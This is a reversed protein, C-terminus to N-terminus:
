KKKKATNRAKAAPKAQATVPAPAEAQATIPAPAPAAVPAPAEAQATIPVPAPAAVPAPAPAQAQATIPVPAPAPAPEPPPIYLRPLAGTEVFDPRNKVKDPHQVAEVPVWPRPYLFRQMPNPHARMDRSFWEVVQVNHTRMNCYWLALEKLKAVKAYALRRALSLTCGEAQLRVLADSYTKQVVAPADTDYGVRLEFPVFKREVPCFNGAAILYRAGYVKVMWLTDQFMDALTDFAKEWECPGKKQKFRYLFVLILFDLHRLGARVCTFLTKNVLVKPKCQEALRVLETPLPADPTLKCMKAENGQYHVGDLLNGVVDCVTKLQQEVSMGLGKYVQLSGPARPGEPKKATAKAVPCLGTQRLCSELYGRSDSSQLARICRVALDKLQEMPLTSPDLDAGVSISQGVAGAAHGLKPIKAAQRAREENNEMILAVDAALDDEAARKTAATRQQRVVPVPKMDAWVFVQNGLSALDPIGFDGLLDMFTALFCGGRRDSAAWKNERFAEVASTCNGVSSFTLLTAEGGWRTRDGGGQFFLVFREGGNRRRRVILGFLAVPHPLTGMPRHMDLVLNNGADRLDTLMAKFETAVPSEFHTTLFLRNLDHRRVDFDPIYMRLSHNIWDPFTPLDTYNQEQMWDYALKSLTPYEIPNKFNSGTLDRLGLSASGSCPTSPTSEGGDAM